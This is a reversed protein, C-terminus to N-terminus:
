GISIGIASNSIINNKFVTGAVNTQDPTADFLFGDPTYLKVWVDLEAPHAEQRKRIECLVRGTAKETVSFLNAGEHLIYNTKDGGVIMGRRITAIRQRQNDFIDFDIGLLGTNDARKIVFLPEGKYVVLNPTNIYTNGGLRVHFQEEIQWM